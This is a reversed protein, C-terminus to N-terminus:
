SRKSKGRTDQLKLRPTSRLMKPASSFDSSALKRGSAVDLCGMLAERSPNGFALHTFDRTNASASNSSLGGFPKQWGDKLPM